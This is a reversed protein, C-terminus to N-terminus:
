DYAFPTWHLAYPKPDIKKLLELFTRGDCPNVSDLFNGFPKLQCLPDLSFTDYEFVISYLADITPYSDGAIVCHKDRSSKQEKLMSNEVSNIMRKVRFRQRNLEFIRESVRAFDPDAPDLIETLDWIETNVRILSSYEFPYQERLRKVDSLANMEQLVAARKDSSAIKSYKIELISLKDFAEGSSVELLM